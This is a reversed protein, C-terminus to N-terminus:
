ALAIRQAKWLAFKEWRLNNWCTKLALLANAGRVSWRCGSKKFRASVEVKYM